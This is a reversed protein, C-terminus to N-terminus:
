QAFRLIDNAKRMLDALPKAFDETSQNFADYHAETWLRGYVRSLLQMAEAPPSLEAPVYRKGDIIVEM